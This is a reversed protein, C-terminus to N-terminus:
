HLQGPREQAAQSQLKLIEQQFESQAAAMTHVTESLGRVLQTLEDIKANDKRQQVEALHLQERIRGETETSTKHAINLALAKFAPSINNHLVALFEKEVHGTLRGTVQDSLTLLVEPSQMSRGIAEPLASKLVAPIANHLQQALAEPLRQDLSSALIDAM